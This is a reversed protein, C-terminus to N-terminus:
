NSSNLSGWHRKMPSLHYVEADQISHGEGLRCLFHM